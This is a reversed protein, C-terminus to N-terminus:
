FKLGTKSDVSVTASPKKKGADPDATL